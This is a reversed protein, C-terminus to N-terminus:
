GKLSTKHDVLNDAIMRINDRLGLNLQERNVDYIDLTELILAAEDKPTPRKGSIREGYYIIANAAEAFEEGHKFAATILADRQDSDMTDDFGSLSHVDNSSILYTLYALAKPFLNTLGLKSADAFLNEVLRMSPGTAADAREGEIIYPISVGIKAASEYYSVDPDREGAEYKAQTNRHIGLEEAFDAQSLGLRKREQKLRNGSERRWQTRYEDLKEAIRGPNKESM